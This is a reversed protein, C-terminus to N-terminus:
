NIRKNVKNYAGLRSGLPYNFLFVGDINFIILLHKGEEDSNESNVIVFTNLPITSTVASIVGLLRHRLNRCKTFQPLNEASDM